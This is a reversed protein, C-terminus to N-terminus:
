RSRSACELKGKALLSSARISSRSSLNARLIKVVDSASGRQRTGNSSKLSKLAYIKPSRWRSPLSSLPLRLDYGHRMEFLFPPMQPCIHSGNPWPAKTHLAVVLVLSWLWQRSMSSLMPCANRNIVDVSTTMEGHCFFGSTCSTSGDPSNSM